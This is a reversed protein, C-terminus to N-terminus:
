EKIVDPVWALKAIRIGQIDPELAAIFYRGAHMFIEPAAVELLCVFKNDAKDDMGFDMANKSRYVSTTPPGAYRQTRFLYYYEGIKVVHPCESSCPNDGTLGGRAVLRSDNWARLDKSTRCYVGGTKTGNMEPYATYYVHWKEGIRILCPDRTNCGVGETFMGPRGTEEYLWREFTKGDKSRQIMLYDWDGYIMHYVDDVLVVHPAQLGGVVTEYDLDAQMVIGKPTWDAAYLDTSEWGHFLRTNGGCATSRICSWIQWTGDAAQWISFDVPQQVHTPHEQPPGTLEGLDPNGAVQWWAGEIRPMVPGSM